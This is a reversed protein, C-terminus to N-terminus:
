RSTKPPGLPVKQSSMLGMSDAMLNSQFNFVPQISDRPSMPPGIPETTMFVTCVTVTEGHVPGDLLIFLFILIDQVPKPPVYFLLDSSSFTRQM